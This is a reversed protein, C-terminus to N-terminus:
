PGDYEERYTIALGGEFNLEWISRMDGGPAVLTIRKGRASIERIAKCANELGELRWLEWPGRTLILPRLVGDVILLSHPTQEVNVHLVRDNGYEDILWDTYLHHDERGYEWVKVLRTRSPAFEEFTGRNIEISGEALGQRGPVDADARNDKESEQANPSTTASREEIKAIHLTRTDSPRGKGCGLAFSAVALFRLGRGFNTMKM